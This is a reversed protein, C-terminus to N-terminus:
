GMDTGARSVPSDLGGIECLHRIVQEVGTGHRMAAFVFPLGKRMRTADREM